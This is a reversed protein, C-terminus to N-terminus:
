DLAHHICFLIIFFSKLFFYWPLFLLSTCCEFSETGNPIMVLRIRNLETRVNLAARPFFRFLARCVAVINAM